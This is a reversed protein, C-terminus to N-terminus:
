MTMDYLLKHIKEANSFYAPRFGTIGQSIRPLIKHGFFFRPVTGGPHKSVWMVDVHKFNRRYVGKISFQPLDYSPRKIIVSDPDWNVFSFNNLVNAIRKRSVKARKFNYGNRREM